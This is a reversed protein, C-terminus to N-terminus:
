LMRSFESSGLFFEIQTVLRKHSTGLSGLKLGKIYPKVRKESIHFQTRAHSVGASWVATTFHLFSMKCDGPSTWKM